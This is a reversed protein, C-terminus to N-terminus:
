AIQAAQPPDITPADPLTLDPFRAVTAAYRAPHCAPCPVVPRDDLAVFGRGGDSSDCDARDCPGHSRPATPVPAPPPPPTDRMQDIRWHLVGVLNAATSLPSTDLEALLGSPTWGQHLHEVLRTLVRRRAAQAMPRDGILEGLVWEADVLEAALPNPQQDPDGGVVVRGGPTGPPAPDPAGPRSPPPQNQDKTFGKTEPSLRTDGGPTVYSHCGVGSNDVPPALNDGGIVQPAVKDVPPALNDGGGDRAARNRAAVQGGRRGAEAFQSRRGQGARYAAAWETVQQPTMAIDYVIPREGPPLHQVMRQDGERLFGGELLLPVNRQVTRESCEAYRAVTEVTAYAHRGDEHANNSWALLMLKRTPHGVHMALVAADAERSV